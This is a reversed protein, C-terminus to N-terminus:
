DHSPFVGQLAICFNLTLFPQMNAHAQGGGSDGVSAPALARLSAPETYWNNAGGLFRGSPNSSSGVAGSAAVPHRHDPLEGESLEHEREGGREGLSRRTGAHVPTRGRADPLAFTSTGDGGFTAGLLQYLPENQATPLMQGDCRAWGRPALGFAM